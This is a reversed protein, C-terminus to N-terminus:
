ELIGSRDGGLAPVRAPSGSCGSDLHKWGYFPSLFGMSGAETVAKPSLLIDCARLSPLQEQERVRYDDGRGCLASHRSRPPTLLPQAFGTQNDVLAAGGEAARPPRRHDANRCGRLRSPAPCPSPPTHVKHYLCLLWPRRLRLVLLFCSAGPGPNSGEKRARPLPGQPVTRAWVGSGSLEASGDTKQPWLPAGM